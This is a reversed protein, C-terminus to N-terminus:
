SHEDRRLCGVIRHYKGSSFAPDLGMVDAFDDGQVDIGRDASAADLKNLILRLASNLDPEERATRLGVWLARFETTQNFHKELGRLCTTKDTQRGATLTFFRREDLRREPPLIYHEGPNCPGAINFSPRM